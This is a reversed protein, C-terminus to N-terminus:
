SNATTTGVFVVSVGDHAANDIQDTNLTPTRDYSFTVYIDHIGGNMGRYLDWIGRNFQNLSFTSNQDGKSSFGATTWNSTTIEAFTTPISGSVTNSGIPLCVVTALTAGNPSGLHFEANVKFSNNSASGIRLEESSMLSLDVNSFKVYSGDRVNTLYGGSMSLNYPETATTADKVGAGPYLGIWRVRLLDNSSVTQPTMGDYFEVKSSQGKSAALNTMGTKFNIMDTKPQGSYDGLDVVNMLPGFVKINKTNIDVPLAQNQNKLLVAGQLAAELAADRNERSEPLKDPNNNGPTNVWEYGDEKSYSAMSGNPGDFEGTKFRTILIEMLNHDIEDETLLGQDVASETYVSYVWNMVGGGCDMNNGAKISYAVAEAPTVVHDSGEPIWKHNLITDNIAGCDNVVFGTFGFTKRLLTNLLYENASCPIGNIRNYASMVSAVDTKEVIRQFAWTYYDRLTKNDVDYTRSNRNRESNNAAYHKITPAVKIYDTGYEAGPNQNVFGDGIGQLGKVFQEGFVATVFPDESYAEENRGWRPDRLLNMTPSYYSLGRSPSANYYARVEDSVITGVKKMLDPNWSSATTIPSPFSVGGANTM